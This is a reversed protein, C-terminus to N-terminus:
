SELYKVFCLFSPPTGGEWLLISHFGPEAGGVLGIFSGASRDGESPVSEAVGMLAEFHTVPTTVASHHPGVGGDDTEARERIAVGDQAREVTEKRDHRVARQRQIAGVSEEFADTGGGVAKGASTV